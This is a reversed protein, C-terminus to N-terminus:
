NLTDNDPFFTKIVNNKDDGKFILILKDGTMHSPNHKQPM